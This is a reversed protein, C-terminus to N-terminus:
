RVKGCEVDTQRGNVALAAPDRQYRFCFTYGNIKLPLSRVKRNFVDMAIEKNQAINKQLVRGPHLADALTIRNGHTPTLSNQCNM